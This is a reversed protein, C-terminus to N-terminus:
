SSAKHVSMGSPQRAILGGTMTLEQDAIPALLAPQHTIVVVCAGRDRLDALLRVMTAASAADVNSFPEDLLLLEPANLLARALSLRQRMGQSYEAVRKTSASELGVSEILWDWDRVVPSYLNAFYKLNERASLEDYLFSQHGMFSLRATVSRLDDAGFLRIKGSSPQSLGALIRM